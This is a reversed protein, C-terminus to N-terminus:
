WDFPLPMVTVHMETAILSAPPLPIDFYDTTDPPDAVIELADGFANMAGWWAQWWRLTLGAADAARDDVSYQPGACRQAVQQAFRGPQDVFRQSADLARGIIVDFPIPPGPDAM